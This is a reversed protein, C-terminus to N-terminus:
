ITLLMKYEDQFSYGVIDTTMDWLRRGDVVATAAPRPHASVGCCALINGAAATVLGDETPPNEIRAVGDGGVRLYLGNCRGYVEGRMVEMLASAALATSLGYRTAWITALRRETKSLGLANRWMPTRLRGPDLIHCRVPASTAELRRALEVTFATLCLKSHASAELPSWDLPGGIQSAPSSSDWGEKAWEPVLKLNRGGTSNPQPEGERHAGAALAIAARIAGRPASPSTHLLSVRIKGQAPVPLFPRLIREFQLRQDLEVFEVQGDM